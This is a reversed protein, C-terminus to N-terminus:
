IPVHTIKKRLWGHYCEKESRLRYGICSGSSVDDTDKCFEFVLFNREMERIRSGLSTNSYGRTLTEKEVDTM